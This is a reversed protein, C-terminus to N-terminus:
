CRWRGSQRCARWRAGRRARRRRIRLSARCASPRIAPAARFEGRRSHPPASTQRPSPAEVSRPLAVVSARSSGPFAAPSAPGAHKDPVRIATQDDPKIRAGIGFVYRTENEDVGEGFPKPIRLRWLLPRYLSLQRLAVYPFTQDQVWCKFPVATEILDTGGRRKVGGGISNAPSSMLAHRLAGIRPIRPADYRPISTSPM